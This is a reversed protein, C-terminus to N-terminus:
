NVAEEGRLVRRADQRMARIAAAVTEIDIVGCYAGDADVVATAGQLSNLMENLADYLTANQPMLQAPLGVEDLPKETHDLDMMSLWRQPRREDDLLLVSGKDSGLLANRIADRGVTVHETPWSVLGVDAVRTLNLRKLSAGAGIFDEVFASAPAALIQGPTDYQAIHSQDDLIAIRDGMKIAEDIDHTVFVITKRLQTQLQLFENQLRARTIPDIASFPEDMLLVPPDAALARAVGVRQSQGGSLEKPYRDRYAAPDMGILELLEDVRTRIRQKNWGLLKPVTAINDAITVHPFLGIQQIVYGMRRRLRDPNVATVDEGELFIRGSTPEILRNIMRLTTTKGSGSPGVLIVIEGTFIELTLEDVANRKQGPFRKTLNELRILPQSGNGNAPATETM